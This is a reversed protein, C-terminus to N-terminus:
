WKSHANDLENKFFFDYDLPWINKFDFYPKNLRVLVEPLLFAFALQFFILSLTRLMQYRSHRYRIMMRVGMVGVALTYLFGYMFFQGAENGSLARSIPDVMLIWHTMYAPKFYLLLYFLILLTGTLIGLWGRNKMAHHFVGNNKIGPPGELQHQPLLFALAGLICLGYSLFLFLWPFDRAPSITSAKTLEYNLRDQAYDGFGHKSLIGYKEIDGAVQRLQAELGEQTAFSKGHLWGGYDKLAQQKFDQISLQPHSVTEFVSIDFPNTRKQLLAQIDRESVRHESLRDSILNTLLMALTKLCLSATRTSAALYFNTRRFM